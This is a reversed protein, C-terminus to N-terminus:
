AGIARMQKILFDIEKEPNSGGIENAVVVHQCANNISSNELDSEQLNMVRKLRAAAKAGKEGRSIQKELKSNIYDANAEIAAKVQQININM